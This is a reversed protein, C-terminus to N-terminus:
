RNAKGAQLVELGVVLRAEADAALGRFVAVITGLRASGVVQGAAGGHWAGVAARVEGDELLELPHHQHTPEAM